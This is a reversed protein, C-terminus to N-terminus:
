VYTWREKDDSTNQRNFIYTMYEGILGTVFIQVGMIMLMVSLLLLPRNGISAGTTLKIFTLYTGGAFGLSFFLFGIYGFFHLPRMRFRTILLMTFLDFYGHFFRMM